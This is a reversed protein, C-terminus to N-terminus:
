ASSHRYGARVASVLACALLKSRHGGAIYLRERLRMRRRGSPATAMSIEPLIKVHALAGGRVPQVGLADFGRRSTWQFRVVAGSTSCATDRPSPAARWPRDAPRELGALVGATLAPGSRRGCSRRAFVRDPPALRVPRHLRVREVAEVGVEEVRQLALVRQEDGVQVAARLGLMADLTRTILSSAQCLRNMRVISTRGSTSSSAPKTGSYVIM